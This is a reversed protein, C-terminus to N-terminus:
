RTQEPPFSYGLIRDGFWSGSLRDLALLPGAYIPLHAQRRRGTLLKIIRDVCREVPLIRFPPPPPEPWPQGNPGLVHERLPTDVFGPSVVGVHVGVRKLEIRLADYLGQVAFKSAGYLAYSPVGRKGTLSSIAVLSGRRARVYPLAFHTAYLTGFFNVRVVREMAALDSNEFYARMSLGASCILIDLAGFRAVTDTVAQGVQEADTVDTPLAVGQGGQAEIHEIVEDLAKRNRAAVAVRAGHGALRLATARGIGSSGGTILVVKDGLAAMLCRVGHLIALLPGMTNSTSFFPVSWGQLFGHWFLIADRGEAFQNGRFRATREHSVAATQMILPLTNPTGEGALAPDDADKLKTATVPLDHCRASVRLQEKKVFCGRQRRAMTRAGLTLMCAVLQEPLHPRSSIRLNCRRWRGGGILHVGHQVGFAKAGAVGFPHIM